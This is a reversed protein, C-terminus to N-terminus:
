KRNDHRRKASNTQNAGIASDAEGSTTNDKQFVPSKPGGGNNKATAPSVAVPATPDTVSVNASAAPVSAGSGAPNPGSTWNPVLSAKGVVSSQDFHKHGPYSNLNTRNSRVDGNFNGFGAFANMSANTKFGSCDALVQTGKLTVNSAGVKFEGSAKITCSGASCEHSSITKQKFSGVTLDMNSGVKQMLSGGVVIESLSGINLKSNLAIKVDSNASYIVQNDGVVELYRKGSTIHTKEHAGNIVKEVRGSVTSFKNGTIYEHYDGGVTLHYSKETTVKLDGDSKLNCQGVVHINANKAVHLELHGKKVDINLDGYQQKKGNERGSNNDRTTDSEGDIVIDFDGKKIRVGCSDNVDIQMNKDCQTFINGKAYTVFNGLVHIKKDGDVALEDSCRQSSGVENYKEDSPDNRGIFVKRSGEQDINELYNKHILYYNEQGERNDVVIMTGGYTTISTIFRNINKSTEKPEDLKDVLYADKAGTEKDILNKIDMTMATGIKRAKASEMNEGGINLKAPSYDGGDIRGQGFASVDLSSEGASTALGQKPDVYAGNGWDSGNVGSTVPTFKKSLTKIQSIKSTLKDKVLKKQALWDDEGPAMAFYIPHHHNGNDFWVWVHNGRAPVAFVGGTGTKNFATKLQGTTLDVSKKYDTNEGGSRSLGLAPCAWPLDNHAVSENYVGPIRVKVRGIDRPDEDDVVYARYMGNFKLDDNSM